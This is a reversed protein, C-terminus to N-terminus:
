IKEYLENISNEYKSFKIPQLSNIKFEDFYNRNLKFEAIKYNKRILVPKPSRYEVTKFCINSDITLRFENQAYYTREYEVISTPYLNKYIPSKSNICDTFNKSFKKTTKYKGSRLNLKEEFTCDINNDDYIRIRTKSKDVDDLLGKKFIKFDFTDIYLSTIKRKKYIEKFNLVDLTELLQNINKVKYKFEVRQEIKL